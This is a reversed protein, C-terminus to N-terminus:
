QQLHASKFTVFIPSLAFMTNFKKFTIKTYIKKAFTFKKWRVKRLNYM